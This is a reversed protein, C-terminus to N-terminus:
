GQTMFTIGFIKATMASCHRASRPMRSNITSHWVKIPKANRLIKPACSVEVPYRARPMDPQINGAASTVKNHNRKPDFGKVGNLRKRSMLRNLMEIKKRWRKLVLGSGSELDVPMKRSKNKETETSRRSAKTEM